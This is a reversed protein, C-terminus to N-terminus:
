NKKHSAKKYLEVPIHPFFMLFLPSFAFCKIYKVYYINSLMSLIIYNLVNM